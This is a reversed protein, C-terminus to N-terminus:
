EVNAEDLEYNVDYESLAKKTLAKKRKAEVQGDHGRVFGKKIKPMIPKEGLEIVGRWNM